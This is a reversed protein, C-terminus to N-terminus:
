SSGYRFRKSRWCNKHNQKWNNVFAAVKKGVPTNVSLTPIIITWKENYKQTINDDNNTKSLKKENENRWFDSSNDFSCGYLLIVLFFYIITKM